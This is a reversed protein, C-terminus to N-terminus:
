KKYDNTPSAFVEELKQVHIGTENLLERAIPDNKYDSYYKIASVGAAALIKTCNICPFHTIYITSGQVSVGRKAADVIANQEAHVTGQEHNDRIRSIHPAGPLFGNYGASIIRNKKKKGSVIVCGVQLRDCSSRTAILFATAMFYEDWSPRDPHRELLEIIQTLISSDGSKM